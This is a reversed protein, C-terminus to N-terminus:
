RLNYIIIFWLEIFGIMEKYKDLYEFGKKTISYYKREKEIEETILKKEVLEFIYEKFMQSSLNSTYLLRTPGLKNRNSKIALLIDYIVELRERKKGM